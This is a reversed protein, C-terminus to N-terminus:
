DSLTVVTKYNQNAKELFVILDSLFSKTSESINQESFLLKAEELLAGLEEFSFQVSGDAGYYEKIKLFTKCGLQQAKEKIENFEGYSLAVPNDAYIIKEITTFSIM